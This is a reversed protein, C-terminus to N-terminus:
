REIDYSDIFAEESGWGALVTVYVYSSYPHSNVHRIFDWMREDFFRMVDRYDSDQLVSNGKKSVSGLLARM